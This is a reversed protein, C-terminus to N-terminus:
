MGGATIGVIGIVAWSLILLLGTMVVRTIGRNSTLGIVLPPGLMWVANWASPISNFSVTIYTAAAALMVVSAMQVLYPRVYFTAKDFMSESKGPMTLM